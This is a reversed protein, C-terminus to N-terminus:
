LDPRSQTPSSWQERIKDEFDQTYLDLVAGSLARRPAEELAYHILVTSSTKIQKIITLPKPSESSASDTDFVFIWAEEPEVTDDDAAARGGDLRWVSPDDPDQQPDPEGLFTRWSDWVAEPLAIVFGACRSQDRTLQMKFITQYITRKFVNAKNPGQVHPINADQLADHYTTPMENQLRELEAVANRYNGHFDATQLEFFVHRGLHFSDDDDALLEVISADIKFAPSGSTARINMEGGFIQHFFVFVRTDNALAHLIERRIEDNQLAITPRLVIDQGGTIGYLREVVSRLLTFRRDLIRNPCALWNQRLGNSDSSITCVGNPKVCERTQETADSLFPCIRTAQDRVAQESGDVPPYVRYGYWEAVYNGKIPRQIGRRQTM